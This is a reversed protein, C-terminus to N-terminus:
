QVPENRSQDQSLRHLDRIRSLIPRYDISSYDPYTHEFPRFSGKEWRITAEGYIGKGLYVRHSSNKTTALVIKGGDFYGPDLNIQRSKEGTATQEEIQNTLIKLDPLFGPDIRKRFVLFVRLLQEGISHYYTTHTFPLPESTWEIEGLKEQLTSCVNDFIIPDQYLVAIFLTVPSPIRITGM